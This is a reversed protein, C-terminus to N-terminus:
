ILNFLHGCRVEGFADLGIVLMGIFLISGRTFGGSATAPLKFFTAGLIIALVTSTGFSTLLQFWDQLRLRMQRKTLIVTQKALGLTYPSQKSVGRKKDNIVAARFSRQDSDDESLVQADYTHRASTLKAHLDSQRWASELAQPTSPVTEATQGKAFQRENPDAITLGLFSNYSAIHIYALNLSSSNTLHHSIVFLCPFIWASCGTLYDATTQRPLDKYGLKVFYNRAQNAPGFYIVRGKDLLLVKDFQKYIGAM